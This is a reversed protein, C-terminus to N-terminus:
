IRREDIHHGRFRFGKYRFMRGGIKDTSELIIVKHGQKSLYAAATLGSLGAGVIIIKKRM